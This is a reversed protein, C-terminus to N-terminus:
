LPQYGKRFARMVHMLTELSNVKYFAGPKDQGPCDEESYCGKLYRARDIIACAISQELYEITSGDSVAFPIRVGQWAIFPNLPSVYECIQASDEPVLADEDGKVWIAFALDLDRNFFPQLRDFALAIAYLKEHLSSGPDIVYADQYAAAPNTPAIQQSFFGEGGYWANRPGTRCHKNTPDVGVIQAYRHPDDSIIGALIDLIENPFFDFFSIMFRLDGPPPFKWDRTLLADLAAIRDVLIGIVALREVEGFYGTEYKHWYYKGKGWPVVCDAQPSEADASVRYFRKDNPDLSQVYAGIDPTGLVKVFFNLGAASAFYMDILGGPKTESSPARMGPVYFYNYLMGQYQKGITSFYRGFVRDEYDFGFNRRFRRFNNFIYNREYSEIANAVIEQSTAGADYRNCFPRDGTREDSCMRYPVPNGPALDDKSYDTSLFFESCVPSYPLM